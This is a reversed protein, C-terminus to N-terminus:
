REAALPTTAHAVRPLIASLILVLAIAPLAM